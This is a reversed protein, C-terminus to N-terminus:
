SCTIGSFAQDPAIERQKFSGQSHKCELVRVTLCDESGAAPTRAETVGGCRVREKECTKASGDRIITGTPGSSNVRAMKATLASVDETSTAQRGSGCARGKEFVRTSPDPIPPETSGSISETAMLNERSM